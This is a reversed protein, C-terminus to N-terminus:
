SIAEIDNVDDDAKLIAIKGSGTGGIRQIDDRVIGAALIAQELSGEVAKKQDFGTLVIEEVSLRETELLLPKPTKQVVISELRM